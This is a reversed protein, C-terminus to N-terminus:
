SLLVLVHVVSSNAEPNQAVGSVRALDQQMELLLLLLSHCGNRGATRILVWSLTEFEFGGQGKGGAGRIDACDIQGLDALNSPYSTSVYKNSLRCCCFVLVFVLKLLPAEKESVKQKLQLSFSDLSVQNKLCGKNGKNM